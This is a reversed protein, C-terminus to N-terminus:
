VAIMNLFHKKKTILQILQLYHSLGDLYFRDMPDPVDGKAKEAVERMLPDIATSIRVRLDEDIFSLGNLVDKVGVVEVPM